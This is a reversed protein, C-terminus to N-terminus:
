KVLHLVFGDFIAQAISSRMCFSPPLILAICVLALYPARNSKMSDPLHGVWLRQAGPLTTEVTSELPPPADADQDADAIPEDNPDDYVEEDVPLRM